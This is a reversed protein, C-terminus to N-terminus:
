RAEVYVALDEVRFGVSRAEVAVRRQAGSSMAGIPYVITRERPNALDLAELLVLSVSVSTFDRATGNVLDLDVRVRGEEQDLALLHYTFENARPRFSERIRVSRLASRRADPPPATPLCGVALLAGALALAAGARAARRGASPPRPECPAKRPRRMRGGHNGM